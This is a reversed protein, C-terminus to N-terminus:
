GGAAEVIELPVVDSLAVAPYSSEEPLRHTGPHYVALVHYAGPELEYRLQATGSVFSLDPLDWALSEGPELEAREEAVHVKAQPRPEVFNWYRDFVVLSLAAASFPSVVALPEAGSNTVTLRGALRGGAAVREPLELRLALPSAGM